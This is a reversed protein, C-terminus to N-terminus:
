HKGYFLVIFAICMMELSLLVYHFIRVMCENQVSEPIEVIRFHLLNELRYFTIYLVRHIWNFFFFFFFFSDIRSVRFNISYSHMRYHQKFM